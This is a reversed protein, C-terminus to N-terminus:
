CAWAPQPHGAVNPDDEPFRTAASPALKIQVHDVKNVDFTVARDFQTKTLPPPNDDGHGENTADFEEKVMANNQELHFKLESTADVCMDNVDEQEELTLKVSECGKEHSCDDDFVTFWYHTGWHMHDDTGSHVFSFNVTVNTQHDLNIVAFCGRATNRATNYAHYETVNVVVMDVKDGKYEGINKFRLEKAGADPGLGGLNSHVEAECLDWTFAAKDTPLDLGPVAKSSLDLLHTPLVM